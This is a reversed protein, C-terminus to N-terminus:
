GPGFLGFADPSFYHEPAGIGTNRIIHQYDHPLARGYHSYQDMFEDVAEDSLSTLDKTTLRALDGEAIEYAVIQLDTAGQQELRRLYSEADARSGWAYFGPGLNARSLGTPWPEGGRALRAADATNQVSYFTKKCSLGKPDIWGITNAAYSYFNYGSLLGLLDQSIFQGVFPDYYRHLNYYNKTEVDEYQGQLRIPNDVRNVLLREIGGWGDYQAAWVVEGDKDLMRTPCGNPANHYLFLAREEATPTCLLALPEFTEPFYVWERVQSPPSPGTPTEEVLADGALADGDWFFRTANSGTTKAVRRGLPDYQYHTPTDNTVSEVLRQNADWQLHITKDADKRVVLNGARDFQYFVGEYRGDRHWQLPGAEDSPHESIRTQLRDGAPDNLYQTIKGQPDVHFLLRGLPDYTFRDTGLASDKEVLNGAPDYRFQQEFLPQENALVSQATLYGDPSYALDRQIQTGLQERILRGWPTVNSISRIM